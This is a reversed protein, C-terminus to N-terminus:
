KTPNNEYCWTLFKKRTERNEVPWWYVYENGEIAGFKEIANEYTFLPFCTQTCIAQKYKVIIDSIAVDISLCLGWLENENLYKLASDYIEKRIKDNPCPLSICKYFAGNGVKRLHPANVKKLNECGQFAWNDIVEVNKTDLEKLNSRNEFVGDGVITVEEPVAFKGNIIDADEISILMNNRIEM